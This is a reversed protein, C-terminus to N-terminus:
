AGRGRRIGCSPSHAPRRRPQHRGICRATQGNARVRVGFGSARTWHPGSSRCVIGRANPPLHHVGLDDSSRVVTARRPAAPDFAALCRSPVILRDPCGVPARASRRRPRWARRPGLSSGAHAREDSGHSGPLCRWSSAPGRARSAARCRRLSGRPAPRGRSQRVTTSRGVRGRILV